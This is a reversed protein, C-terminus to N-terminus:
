APPWAAVFDRVVPTSPARQPGGATGAYVFGAIHEAPAVGLAAKVRPHEAMWGTRWMAAYGQDHLALLLNQVSAGTSLVQEVEPVKEDQRIAVVAVIILPARLPMALLRKRETDGLEPNDQLGAALFVEGLQERAEGAVTLYRWPRLLRHDPARLAAAFAKDLTVADPAPEVLGGVSTRTMLADLTQM